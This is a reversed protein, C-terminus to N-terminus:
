DLNEWEKFLTTLSAKFRKYNKNNTSTWGTEAYAAIRPFTQSYVENETPTWEGWM